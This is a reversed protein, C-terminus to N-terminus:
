RGCCKKFKTGSGCPCLDNRGVKYQKKLEQKKKDQETEKYLHQKKKKGKETLADALIYTYAGKLINEANYLDMM